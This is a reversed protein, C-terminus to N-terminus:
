RPPKPPRSAASAGVRAPKLYTDALAWAQDEEMRYEFARPPGGQIVSTLYANAVEPDRVRFVIQRTGNWTISALLAANGEAQLNVRFEDGLKGLVTQEEQTPLGMPLAEAMQIIISLQWALASQPKFGDLARNVIWIDPLGESEAQIVVLSDKPLRAARPPTARRFLPWIM